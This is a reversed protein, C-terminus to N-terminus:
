GCNRRVPLPLLISPVLCVLVLPIGDHLTGGVAVHRQRGQQYHPRKPGPLCVRQGLTRSVHEQLRVSAYEDTCVRVPLCGTTFCLTPSTQTKFSINQEQSQWTM